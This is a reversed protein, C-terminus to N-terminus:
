VGKSRPLSLSVPSPSVCLLVLKGRPEVFPLLITINNDLSLVQVVACKGVTCVSVSPGTTVLDRGIPVLMMSFLSHLAPLCEAELDTM